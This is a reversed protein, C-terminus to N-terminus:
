CSLSPTHFFIKYVQSMSTLFVIWLAFRNRGGGGPVVGPQQGVDLLADAGRLHAGRHRHLALISM